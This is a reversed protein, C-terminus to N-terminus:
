DGIMMFQSLYSVAWIRYSIAKLQDTTTTEFIAQAAFEMELSRGNKLASELKGLILIDGDDKGLSYV